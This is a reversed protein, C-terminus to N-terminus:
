KKIEKRISEEEELWAQSDGGRTLDSGSRRRLRGGKERSCRIGLDLEDGELVLRGGLQGGRQVREM